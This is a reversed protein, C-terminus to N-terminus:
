QKGAEYGAKADDVMEDGAAKVGAAAQVANGAAEGVSHAASSAADGTAEAADGVAEGAQEMSAAADDTMQEAEKKSCGTLAISGVVVALSLTKIDIKM